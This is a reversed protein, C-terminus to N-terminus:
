QTNLLTLDRAFMHNSRLSCKSNDIQLEGNPCGLFLTQIGKEINFVTISFLFATFHM